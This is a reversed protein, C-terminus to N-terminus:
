KKFFTWNVWFEFNGNGSPHYSTSFIHEVVNDSLDYSNLSMLSGGVSLLSCRNTAEPQDTPENIFIYCSFSGDYTAVCQGDGCPYSSCPDLPELM